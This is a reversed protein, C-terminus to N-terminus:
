VSSSIHNTGKPVRSSITVHQPNFPLGGTFNYSYIALISVGRLSSCLTCLYILTSIFGPLLFAKLYMVNGTNPFNMLCVSNHLLETEFQRFIAVGKQRHLYWITSKGQVQHIWPKFKSKTWVKEPLWNLQDCYHCFSAHRTSKEKPRLCHCIWSHFDALRYNVTSPWRDM